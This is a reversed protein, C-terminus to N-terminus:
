PTICPIIYPVVIRSVCPSVLASASPQRWRLRSPEPFRRKASLTRRSCCLLMPDARVVTLTRQSDRQPLEDRLLAQILHVKSLAAQYVSEAAQAHSKWVKGMARKSGPLVAVLHQSRPPQTFPTFLFLIAGFSLIHTRTRQQATKRLAHLCSSTGKSNACHSGPLYMAQLARCKTPISTKWSPSIQRSSAKWGSGTLISALCPGM